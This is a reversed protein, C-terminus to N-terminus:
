RALRPARRRPPACDVSEAPHHKAAVATQYSRVIRRTPGLSPTPDIDNISRNSRTWRAWRAAASASAASAASERAAGGSPAVVSPAAAIVLEVGGAAFPVAWAADFPVAGDFVGSAASPPVLVAASFPVVGDVLVVAVMSAGGAAGVVSVEIARVPTGTIDDAAVGGTAAASAGPTAMTGIGRGAAGEPEPVSRVGRVGARSSRIRSTRRRRWTSTTPANLASSSALSPSTRLVCRAAPRGPRDRLAPERDGALLAIRRTSSITWSTVPKPGSSGSSASGVMVSTM